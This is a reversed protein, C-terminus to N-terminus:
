ALALSPADRDPQESRSASNPGAARRHQETGSGLFEDILQALRDPRDRMILTYSNAVLELRSGPILAALRKGHEPRQIRDEPTWVILTPVKVWPLRRCIDIMHRKRAGAAYRRLDRRLGADSQLAVLWSDVLEDPLARKTLWGFTVPVAAHDNGILTVEQLRRAVSIVSAHGLCRQIKSRQM